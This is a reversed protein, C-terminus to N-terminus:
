ELPLKLEGTTLDPRARTMEDATTDASPHDPPALPAGATSSASAHDGMASRVPDSLAISLDSVLLDALGESGRHELWHRYSVTVIAVVPIALFIGAVGALEAGSLIAIIVALPHLHVGHRILRPYVVYDQVIRLVSLFILVILATGFGSYLVAALAALIAIILPGVLPVFEFLGAILGLVLPSPLGIIAFGGACVTGVLFCATLQARTYAALTSNVDQFFEDGRWRWRGRPLMQLAQRRFSDADKLMFFSLVPILVLWPIFVVLGALDTLVVSVSGGIKEIITPVANNIADLVAVPLHRQKFYENLQHTKLGITKGYSQAQQAFQPFQSAIQPVVFYIGVFVAAFILLYALGIALARPLAIRFRGINRARQLFEVLPSVLYAFFISLVLLLIVTTLKFLVWLTAAVALAIFIVRLIVRVPPWSPEVTAPAAITAVQTTEENRQHV